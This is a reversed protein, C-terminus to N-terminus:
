TEGCVGGVVWGCVSGRWWRSVAQGREGLRWVDVCVGVSMRRRRRRVSKSRKAVEHGGTVRGEGGRRCEESLVM